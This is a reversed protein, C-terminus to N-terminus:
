CKLRVKLIYKVACVHLALTFNGEAIRVKENFVFLLLLVFFSSLSFKLQFIFSFGKTERFIVGHM